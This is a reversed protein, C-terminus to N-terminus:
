TLPSSSARAASSASAFTSRRCTVSGSQDADAAVAILVEDPLELRLEVLGAPLLDTIVVLETRAGDV